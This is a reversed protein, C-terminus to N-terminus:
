GTDHVLDKSTQTEKVLYPQGIQRKVTGTVAKRPSLSLANTQGSLNSRTKRPHNIDKIFGANTKVACVIGSQDIGENAQPVDAVSDYYDLMIFFHDTCRIPENIYTGTCANM